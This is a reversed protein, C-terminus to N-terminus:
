QSHSTYKEHMRRETMARMLRMERVAQPPPELSEAGSVEEVLVSVDVSVVVSVDGSVDVVRAAGVVITAGYV